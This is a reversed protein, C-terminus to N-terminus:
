EDHQKKKPDTNNSSLKPYLLILLYVGAFPILIESVSKLMLPIAGLEREPVIELVAFVAVVIGCAALKATYSMPPLKCGYVAGKNVIYGYRRAV